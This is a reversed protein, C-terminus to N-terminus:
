GGTGTTSPRLFQSCPLSLTLEVDYIICFCVHAPVGVSMNSGLMVEQNVDGVIQPNVLTAQNYSPFKGDLARNMLGYSDITSCFSSTCVKNGGFAAGIEAGSTGM